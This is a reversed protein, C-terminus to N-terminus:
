SWSENFSWGVIGNLTPIRGPSMGSFFSLTHSWGSISSGLQRERELFLTESSPQLHYPRSEPHLLRRYMTDESTAFCM